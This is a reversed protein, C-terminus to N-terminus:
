GGDGPPPPALGLLELADSEELPGQQMAAAFAVMNGGAESGSLGAAVMLVFATRLLHQIAEDTDGCRPVSLMKILARMMVVAHRESPSMDAFRIRKSGEDQTEDQM